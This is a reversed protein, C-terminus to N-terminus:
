IITVQRDKSIEVLGEYWALVMLVSNALAGGHLEFTLRATGSKQLNLSHQNQTRDQTLDFTMAPYVKYHNTIMMDGNNVGGLQKVFTDLMLGIESPRREIPRPFHEAGNVLLQVSRIAYLSFPNKSRTRGFATRDQVGILCCYPLTGNFLNEVTHEQAGETMTHVSLIGRDAHYIANDRALREEILNLVIDSPRQFTCRLIVKEFVVKETSANASMLIFESYNKTLGIQIELNQPLLKQQNFLPINLDSVLSVLNGQAIRDARKTSSPNQAAPRLQAVLEPYFILDQSLAKSGVDDLILGEKHELLNQCGSPTHIVTEWFKFMAYSNDISQTLSAGGIIVEVNRWLGAALHPITSVAAHEATDGNAVTQVKLDTLVEVKDLMYSQMAPVTFSIVDSSNISSTPYFDMTKTEIVATQTPIPDWLHLNSPLAEQSKIYKTM